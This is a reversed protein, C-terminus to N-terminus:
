FKFSLEGGFMRPEGAIALNEGTTAGLAFGGLIYKKNALNKVYLAISAGSGAIKNWEFRMNVLKYGPIKTGPLDISSFFESSQMYVDGRVTMSGIREPVPLDISTYLAGTWKPTDAYQTFTLNQGLVTAVPKTFEAHTYAGSGGFHFWPLPRIEGSVEIGKVEAEPVNATIGTVQGDVNAYFDRQVKTTIQDYASLNLNFPVDV